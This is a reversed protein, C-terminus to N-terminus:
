NLAKRPIFETYLERSVYSFCNWEADVLLFPPRMVNAIRRVREEVVISCPPFTKSENNQKQPLWSAEYFKFM